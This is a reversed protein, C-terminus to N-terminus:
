LTRLAQAPDLRSAMWAPYLSAASGCVLALVLAAGALSPDWPLHGGGDQSFLPLALEGALHGA